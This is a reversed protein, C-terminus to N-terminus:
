VCETTESYVLTRKSRASRPRAAATMTGTSTPATKTRSVPRRRALVGTSQLGHEVRGRASAASAVRDRKASGPRMARAAGGPPSRLPAAASRWRLSCSRHCGSPSARASSGAVFSAFLVVVPLDQPQRDGREPRQDGLRQVHQHVRRHHAVEAGVLQRPEADRRAHQQRRVEQEHEERVARGPRHGPEDARALRRLRGALPELPHPQRQEQRDDDPPTSATAAGAMM